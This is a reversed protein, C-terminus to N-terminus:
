CPGRMMIIRKKEKKKEKKKMNGRDRFASSRETSGEEEKCGIEPELVRRVDEEVESSCNSFSVSPHFGHCLASPFRTDDGVRRAKRKEHEYREEKDVSEVMRM